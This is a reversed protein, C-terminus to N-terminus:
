EIATECTNNSDCQDHKKQQEGTEDVEYAEQRTVSSGRRSTIRMHNEDENGPTVTVKPTNVGVVLTPFLSQTAVLKVLTQSFQFM